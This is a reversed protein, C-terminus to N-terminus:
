KFEVFESMVFGTIVVGNQEFSIKSWADNGLPDYGLFEVECGNPIKCIVNDGVEPSFRVNLLNICNVTAFHKEDVLEEEIKDTVEEVVEENQIEDADKICKDWTSYESYNIRHKKSM